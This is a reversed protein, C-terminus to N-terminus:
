WPISPVITFTPRPARGVRSSGWQNLLVCRKGRVIWRHNSLGQKGIQCASRGKRYPHILEVGYTDVIGLLTPTALCRDTWRQHTKFLRFLRTRHPLRPLLGRWNNSVWRYFARTGQGKLAVLLGLTVVESPWLRAQPHQPVTGVAADVECFLAIIFDETAM